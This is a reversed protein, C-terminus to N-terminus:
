IWDGGDDAILTSPAETATAARGADDDSATTVALAALLRARQLQLQEKEVRLQEISLATPPVDSVVDHYPPPEPEPEPELESRSPWATATARPPPPPPPTTQLATPSRRGSQQQRQWQHRHQQQSRRRREGRIEAEIALLEAELAAEMTQLASTRTTSRPLALSSPSPPSPEMGAEVTVRGGVEVLPNVAFTTPAIWDTSAAVLHSYQDRRRRGAIVGGSTDAATVSAPNGAVDDHSPHEDTESDSSLYAYDSIESDSLIDEDSDLRARSTPRPPPPPLMPSQRGATVLVATVEAEAAAAAGEAAARQGCLQALARRHQLEEAAEQIVLLRPAKDAVDAIVVGVACSGGPHVIAAIEPPHPLRWFAIDLASVRSGVAFERTSGGPGADQARLLEANWRETVVHGDIRGQQRAQVERVHQGLALLQRQWRSTAYRFLVMLILLGALFGIIPTPQRTSAQRQELTQRYLNTDGWSGMALVPAAAAGVTTTNGGVRGNLADM